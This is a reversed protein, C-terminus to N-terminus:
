GEVDSKCSLPNQSESQAPQGSVQLDSAPKQIKRPGERIEQRQLVCFVIDRDEASDSYRAM